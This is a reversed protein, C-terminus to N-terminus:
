CATSSCISFLMAEAQTEDYHPNLPHADVDYKPDLQKKELWDGKPLKISHDGGEHVEPPPAFPWIKSKINDSNLGAEDQAKSTITSVVQVAATFSPSAVFCYVASCLLLSRKLLSSM